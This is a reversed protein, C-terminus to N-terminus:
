VDKATVSNGSGADSISAGVRYTINDGGQNNDCGSKLRIGTEYATNQNCDINNGQIVNRDCANELQIGCCSSSFKTSRNIIIINNSIQSDNLTHARIGNTYYFSGYGTSKSCLNIINSEMKNNNGTLYVSRIYDIRTSSTNIDLYNNSINIRNSVNLNIGSIGMADDKTSQSVMSTNFIFNNSVIDINNCYDLSIGMVNFNIRNGWIKSYRTDETSGQWAWFFRDINNFTNDTIYMNEYDVTQIAMYGTSFYCNRISLKCNGLGREALIGVNTRTKIDINLHNLYLHLDNDSSADGHIHIMGDYNNPSSTSRTISLTFNSMRITKKLNHLNFIECISSSAELKVGGQSQGCIDFNVNPINLKTSLSYTGNKIYIAQKNATSLNDLADQISTYDGLNTSTAITFTIPYNNLLGTTANYSAASSSNGFIDYTKLEIYITAEYNYTEEQDKDLFVSLEPINIKMWDSWGESEIQIRYEWYAFDIPIKDNWYFRIGNIFNDSNLGTPIDPNATGGVVIHNVYVWEGRRNKIDLFRTRIRYKAGVEVNQITFKADNASIGKLDNWNSDFTPVGLCLWRVENDVVTQGAIIPWIPESVDSDGATICRYWINNIIETIDNTNVLDLVMNSIKLIVKGDVDINSNNIYNDLLPNFIKLIVKNLLELEIFSSGINCITNKVILLQDIKRSPRLRDDLDYTTSAEWINGDHNDEYLKYQAELGIPQIMGNTQPIDFNVVINNILIGGSNYFMASEDSILETIIPLPIDEYTQYTINSSWDPITGSDANLIDENYDILYITASLDSMPIIEKVIMLSYESNLEGWVLLNDEDILSSSATPLTCTITKHEGDNTDIQCSIPVTNTRIIIGYDTGASMTIHDDLVLTVDTGDITKSKIRCWGSGISPADHALGILDGRTCVIHEFDVDIKHIEPRLKAAALYYRGLKWAQEYNNVFSLELIEFETANTSDYGDDYAMIEDPQGNEDVFKCRVAHPLDSFIKTASYNWSNRPTFIQIPISKEEDIIVGYKEDIMGPASMAISTIQKLIERVPAKGTLVGNCEFGKTDCFQAFELLNTENLRSTSIAKKNSSGTLVEAFCWANNRTAKTIWNDGTYVPHHAQCVLNFTDVYGNLQNTAKIKLAITEITNNKPIVKDSTIQETFSRIATWYIDDYTRSDGDSTMMEEMDSTTKTIFGGKSYITKGDCFMSIPKIRVDYQGSNSMEWKIVGRAMSAGCGYFVLAVSNSETNAYGFICSGSTSINPTIIGSVPKGQIVDRWAGSAYVQLKYQITIIRRTGTEKAIYLLGRPATLDIQIYKTNPETTQLMWPTITTDFKAYYNESTDKYEHYGPLLINLDKQIVSGDNYFISSAQNNTLFEYEVDDYNDISTEGIKLESKDLPGPGLCYLEHVYQENGIIETYPLAARPPYIRARGLIRPVTGFPLIQNNTGVISYTQDVSFGTVTPAQIKATPPPILTSVALNGVFYTAAGWAQGWYYGVYAAAIIVVIRLITDLVNKGDGKGAFERIIIIDNAKPYTIEYNEKKIYIDNVYIHAYNYDINSKKCIDVINFGEQIKYINKTFSFPKCTTINILNNKSTQDISVM